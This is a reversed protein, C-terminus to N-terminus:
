SRGQFVTMGHLLREVRNQKHVVTSSPTSIARHVAVGLRLIRFELHTVAEPKAESRWESRNAEIESPILTAAAASVEQDSRRELVM